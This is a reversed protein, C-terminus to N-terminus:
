LMGRTACGCILMIRACSSVIGSRSTFMRYPETTGLTVLDDILVGIYGESRKIVLPPRGQVQLAANLGAMLGPRPEEYGTTGSIQGAHFLGSVRKTEFDAQARPRCLTTSWRM